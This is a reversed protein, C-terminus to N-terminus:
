FKNKNFKTKTKIILKQKFKKKKQKFIFNNYINFYSLVQNKLIITHLEIVPLDKEVGPGNVM